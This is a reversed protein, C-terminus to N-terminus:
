AVNNEKLMCLREGIVFKIIEKSNDSCGKFIFKDLIESGSTVVLVGLLEDIFSQTFEIDKFDIIIQDDTKLLSELDLRIERGKYRTGLFNSSAYDAVTVHNSVNM